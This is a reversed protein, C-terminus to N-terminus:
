TLSTRSSSSKCSHVRDADVKMHQLLEDELVDNVYARPFFAKEASQSADPAIEDRLDVMDRLSM